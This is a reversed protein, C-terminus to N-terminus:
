FLGFFSKKNKVPLNLNCLTNNNSCNYEITNYNIPLTVIFESGLNYRSNIDIQGGLLSALKNCLYLGFGNSNSKNYSIIPKVDMLNKIYEPKISTPVGNSDVNVIQYFESNVQNRTSM